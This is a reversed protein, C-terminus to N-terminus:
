ILQIIFCCTRELKANQLPIYTKQKLFIGKEKKKKGM